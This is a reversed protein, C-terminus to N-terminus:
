KLIYPSHTTIMLYKYEKSMFLIKSLAIQLSKLIHNEPEEVLFINM